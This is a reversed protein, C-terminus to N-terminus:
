RCARRAGSCGEENAGRESRLALREPFLGLFLPDDMTARHARRRIYMSILRPFLTRLRDQQPPVAECRCPSPIFIGGRSRITVVATLGYCSSIFRARFASPEPALS